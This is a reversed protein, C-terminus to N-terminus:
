LTFAPSQKQVGEETHFMLQIKGHNNNKAFIKCNCKSWFFNLLLFQRRYNNKNDDISFDYFISKCFIFTSIKSDFQLQLFVMQVTNMKNDLSSLVARCSVARDCSFPSKWSPSIAWHRISAPLSTLALLLSKPSTLFFQKKKGM